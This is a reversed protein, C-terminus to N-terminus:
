LVTFINELVSPAKGSLHEDMDNMFKLTVPVDTAQNTDSLDM